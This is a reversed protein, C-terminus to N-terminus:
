EYEGNIMTVAESMPTLTKLNIVFAKIRTTGGAGISANYLFGDDVNEGFIVKSLAGDQYAAIILQEDKEYSMAYATYIGNSCNMYAKAEECVKITYQRSIYGNEIVIINGDNIDSTQETLTEDSYVGVVNGYFGLYDVLDSIMLDSPLYINDGIVASDDANSIIYPAESELYRGNYISINDFVASTATFLKIQSIFQIPYKWVTYEAEKIYEGNIRVSIVANGPTYTLAIRYWKGPEYTMLPHDLDKGYIVGGSFLIPTKGSKYPSGTVKCERTNAHSYLQVYTKGLDLPMVSFEATVPQYTLPNSYTTNMNFLDVRATADGNSNINEILIGEDAGGSSTTYKYASKRATSETVLMGDSADAIDAIQTNSGVLAAYYVIGDDSELEIYKGDALASDAAEAGASDRAVAKKIRSMDFSDLVESVTTNPSVYVTGRQVWNVTDLTQLIPLPTMVEAPKAGGIYSVLKFNDYYIGSNTSVNKLKYHLWLERFGMFQSYENTIDEGDDTANVASVYKDLPLNQIVVPTIGDPKTSSPGDAVPTGDIYVSLTNYTTEGDGATVVARLRYWKGPILAPTLDYVYEGNMLSIYDGTIKIVDLAKRYDGNEDFIMGSVCVPYPIDDYAFDFTFEQSDGDSYLKANAEGKFAIYPSATSVISADNHMYVARDSASKGMKGDANEITISANDNAFDIKGLMFPLTQVDNAGNNKASLESFDTDVVKIAANKATASREYSGRYLKIDDVSMRAYKVGTNLSIAFVARRLYDGNRACLTASYVGNVYLDAYSAKAEASTHVSWQVNNWAGAYLNAGNVPATGGTFIGNSICSDHTYPKGQNDGTAKYYIYAARYASDGKESDGISMLYEAYKGNGDTGTDADYRNFKVNYSVTYDEGDAIGLESVPQTSLIYMASGNENALEIDLYRDGGTKAIATKVTSSSNNADHYEFVNLAEEASECGDFNEEWVLEAGATSITRESIPTTDVVGKSLAMRVTLNVQTGTFKIAIKRIGDYTEGELKPSTPLPAADAASVECSDADAAIQVYLTKGNKTLKVLSNDVVEVDADTHMFWYGTTQSGCQIEDRVTLTSYNDDIYFGRKVSQAADYLESMDYVAYAGFDNDKSDILSAFTGAKQSLGADPSFTLTNHGETRASYRTLNTGLNYDTAGLEAAWEEGGLDFIFNGSDNHSHYFTTPGADAAFFMANPNSFDEHVVFSETGEGRHVKPLMALDAESAEPMYYVIDLVSPDASMMKSGFRTRLEPSLKIKRVAAVDPQNYYKAFFSYPETSFYRVTSSSDDGFVYRGNLSTYSILNRCQEEMGPASLLNYDTGLIDTMPGISYALDSQISRWYRQGELWEGTEFGILVYELSRLAKEISDACLKPASEMVALASIIVGSNAYAGYNSKWRVFCNGSHFGGGVYGDLPNANSPLGAYYARNVSKLELNIIADAIKKREAQTMYNYLWDYGYALGSSWMGCDIIHGNNFDPFEAVALLDQLAREAYEPKDTLLYAFALKKVREEFQEAQTNTRYTDSFKYEAANEGITKDAAAIVGDVLSKYYGDSAAQRKIDSIKENNVLLRPHQGNLGSEKWDNIIEQAEPRDYLLYMNMIRIDSLEYYRGDYGGKSICSSLYVDEWHNDNADLNIEGSSFLVMGRGDDFSNLSLTKQALEKVPVLAGQTGNEATIEAGNVTITEGSVSVSVGFCDAFDEAPVYLDKDNYVPAATLNHKAGDKFYVGSYANFAATYSSLLTKAESNDIFVSTKVANGDLMAKEYGTIDCNRLNVEAGSGKVTCRVSDISKIDPIYETGIKEGDVYIDATGSKLNVSALYTHWGDGLDGSSAGSSLSLRGNSIQSLAASKGGNYIEFLQVKSVDSLIQFETSLGFYSYIKGAPFDNQRNTTEVEFYNENENINKFAIDKNKEANYVDLAGFSLTNGNSVATTLAFSKTATFCYNSNFYTYDGVDQEVTVAAAEATLVSFNIGGIMSLALILSLIRKKM